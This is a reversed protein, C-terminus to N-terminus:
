KRKRLTDVHVADASKFLCQTRVETSAFDSFTHVAGSQECVLPSATKDTTLTEYRRFHLSGKPDVTFHTAGGFARDITPNMMSSPPGHPYSFPLDQNMCYQKYEPQTGLYLRILELEPCARRLDRIMGWFENERRSRIAQVMNESVYPNFWPTDKERRGESWHHVMEWIEPGIAFNFSETLMSALVGVTFENRREPLWGSTYGGDVKTLRPVPPANESPFVEVWLLPLMRPEHKAEVAAM